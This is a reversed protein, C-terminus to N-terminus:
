MKYNTKVKRLCGALWDTFCSLSVACTALTQMRRRSCYYAHPKEKKNGPKRDVDTQRWAAPPPPPCGGLNMGGDLGTMTSLVCLTADRRLYSWHTMAWLRKSRMWVTHHHNTIKKKKRIGAALNRLGSNMGGLCLVSGILNKMSLFSMIRLLFTSLM